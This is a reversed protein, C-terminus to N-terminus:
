YTLTNMLEQAHLVLGKKIRIDSQKVATKIILNYKYIVYARYAKNPDTFLGLHKRKGNVGCQAVYKGSAKHFCVGIPFEGRLAARDALLNNLAPSVFVCANPGYTKNGPEIIDKDLHNGQWPQTAM